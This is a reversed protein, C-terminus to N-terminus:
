YDGVLAPTGPGTCPENVDNFAEFDREPRRPSPTLPPPPSARRSRSRDQEMLPASSRIGSTSAVALACQCPELPRKPIAGRSSEADGNQPRRPPSMSPPSPPTPVRHVELVFPAGMTAEFHTSRRPQESRANPPPFWDDAASTPVMSPPEVPGTPGDVAAADASAAAAATSAAAAARAAAAAPDNAPLSAGIGQDDDDKSMPLDEWWPASLRRAMSVEAGPSRPFGADPLPSPNVSPHSTGDMSSELEGESLEDGRSPVFSITSIQSLRNVEGADLEMEEDSSGSSEM